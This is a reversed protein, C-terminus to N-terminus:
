TQCFGSMAWPRFCKAEKTYCPFSSEQISKSLGTDTEMFVKPELINFMIFFDHLNIWPGQFKTKLPALM